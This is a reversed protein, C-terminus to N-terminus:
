HAHVCAALTSRLVKEYDSWREFHPFTFRLFVPYGVVLPFNEVQLVWVITRPPSPYFSVALTFGVQVRRRIGVIAIMLKICIQLLVHRSLYANRPLADSRQTAKRRVPSRGSEASPSRCALQMGDPPPNKIAERFGTAQRCM